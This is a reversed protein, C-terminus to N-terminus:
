DERGIDRSRFCWVAALLLAVGWLGICIMVISLADSVGPTDAM